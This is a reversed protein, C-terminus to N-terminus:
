RNYGHSQTAHIYASSALGLAQTHPDHSTRAGNVRSRLEEDTLDISGSLLAALELMAVCLVTSMETFEREAHDKAVALISIRDETDAMYMKEAVRYLFGQHSRTIM